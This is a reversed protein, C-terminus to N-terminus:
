KRGERKYKKYSELVKSYLEVGDHSLIYDDSLNVSFKRFADYDLKDDNTLKRLIEPSLKKQVQEDILLDEFIQALKRIQRGEKSYAMYLATIPSMAYDLRRIKSEDIIKNMYDREYNKFRFSTISVMSLNILMRDMILKVEGNANKRLTSIPVYLKSYGVFSCVLTDNINSYISFKGENDSMTGNGNSKNIIYVFPMASNSDKELVTGKIIQQGFASSASIILLYIVSLFKLVKFTHKNQKNIFL